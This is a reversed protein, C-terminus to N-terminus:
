WLVGARRVLRAMKRRGAVLPRFVEKKKEEKRTYKYRTYVYTYVYVCVHAYFKRSLFFFPDAIFTLCQVSHYEIRLWVPELYPKRGPNQRYTCLFARPSKRDRTYCLTRTCMVIIYSKNSFFNLRQPIFNVTISFICVM